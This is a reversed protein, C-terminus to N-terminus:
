TNWLPDVTFHTSRNVTNTEVVLIQVWVYHGAVSSGVCGNRFYGVGDAVIQLWKRNETADDSPEERAGVGVGGVPILEGTIANQQRLYSVHSLTRLAKM